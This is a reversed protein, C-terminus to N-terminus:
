NQIHGVAYLLLFMRVFAYVTLAIMLGAIWDWVRDRVGPVL